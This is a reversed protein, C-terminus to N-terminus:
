CPFHMIRLPTGLVLMVPSKWSGVFQPRERSVLPLPRWRMKKGTCCGPCMCLSTQSEDVIGGALGHVEPVLVQERTQPPILVMTDALTPPLHAAPALLAM